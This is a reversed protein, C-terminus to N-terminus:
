NEGGLLKLPEPSSFKRSRSKGKKFTYGSMVVLERAKELLEGRRTLLEPHTLALKGAEENIRKQYDTLPRTTEKKFIMASKFVEDEDACM